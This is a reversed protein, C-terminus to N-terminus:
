SDQLAAEVALLVKRKLADVSIPSAPEAAEAHVPIELVDAQEIKDLHRDLEEVSKFTSDNKRRVNEAAERERRDAEPTGATVIKAPRLQVYGSDSVALELWDGAQIGLGSVVDAPLTIQNRDRLRVMARTM